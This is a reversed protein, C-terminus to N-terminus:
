NKNKYKIKLKSSDVGNLAKVQLGNIYIKGNEQTRPESSINKSKAMVDKVADAKGQEYFHEAIQDANSATYLAKHYGKYDEVEGSNNLFKKLFTKINSQQNAVNSPNNVNYRFSKEGVNYEFGEFENNLYNTTKSKFDDHRLKAEEQEKNHKNFFDLAKQQDNSLSSRLKIEEYYKDKLGNLFNKAEAVEEKVALKKKKIEREDDVEEDYSFQDQMLFDIEDHNLHPKKHKYYERLLTDGDVKSYDANLRVYDDLTGGTEQMFGIAKKISEPIVIPPNSNEKIEEKAPEKREVEQIPNKVENKIEVKTDNAVPVREGMDGSDGSSEGVPVEKTEGVPIADKEKKTLDLKFVDSEKREFSPKKVKIKLSEQEEKTTSM